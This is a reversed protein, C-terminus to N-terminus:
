LCFMLVTINTVWTYLAIEEGLIVTSIQTLLKMISIGLQCIKYRLLLDELWLYDIYVSLYRRKELYPLFATTYSTLIKQLFNGENMHEPFWFASPKIVVVLIIKHM